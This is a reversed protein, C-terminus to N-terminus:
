KQSPYISVCRWTPDRDSPVTFSLQNKSYCFLTITFMPIPSLASLQISVAGIYSKTSKLFNAICVGLLIARACILGCSLICYGFYIM